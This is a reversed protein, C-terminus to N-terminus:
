MSFSRRWWLFMYIANIKLYNVKICLQLLEFLKAATTYSRRNSRQITITFNSTRYESQVSRSSTDNPFISIEIIGVLAATCSLLCFSLNAVALNDARTENESILLPDNCGTIPNLIKLVPERKFQM